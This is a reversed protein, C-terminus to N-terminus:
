SSGTKGSPPAQALVIYRGIFVLMPMLMGHLYPYVCLYLYLRTCTYIHIYAYSHLFLCTPMRTYKELCVYSFAWIFYYVYAYAHVIVHLNPYLYIFHYITYSYLSIYINGCLHTPLYFQACTISASEAWGM